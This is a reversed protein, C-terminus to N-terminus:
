SCPSVVDSFIAWLHDATQSYDNVEAIFGRRLGGQQQEEDSTSEKHVQALLQERQIRLVSHTLSTSHRKLLSLFHDRAAARADAIIREMGPLDEFDNLEALFQADSLSSASKRTDRMFKDISASDPGPSVVSSFTDWAKGILGKQEEHTPVMWLAKVAEKTYKADKYLITDFHGQM